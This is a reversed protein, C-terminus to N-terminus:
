PIRRISRLIQDYDPLHRAFSEAPAVYMVHIQEDRQVFLTQVWRHKTGSIKGRFYIERAPLGAVEVPRNNLLKFGKIHTKLSEIASRTLSDLDPAAPSDGGDLPMGIVAVRGEGHAPILTLDERSPVDSILWGRPPTLRIGLRSSEWSSRQPEQARAPAAEMLALSAAGLVVAAVRSPRRRIPIPLGTRKPQRLQM